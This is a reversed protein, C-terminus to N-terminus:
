KSVEQIGGGLARYLDIANTLNLLKTQLLQQEATFLEREADLVELYNAIGNQYRAQALALRESQSKQVAHQADAEDNLTARAALADAVERFAVQITKEYSTVAIESRVEAVKLNAKNRGSDFIPLSVSPVFSWTNQGSNFLGSLDTSATGVGATLAIRPFFAARAAAINAQMARLRQEAARIDPRQTLLESPLGAGITALMEQKALSQNSESSQIQTGVLVQLANVSLAHQRKL